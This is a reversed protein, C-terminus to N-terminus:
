HKSQPQKPWYLPEPPLHGVMVTQEPTVNLNVTRIVVGQKAISISLLKAEEITPATVLLDEVPFHPPLPLPESGCENEVVVGVTPKSAADVLQNCLNLAEWDQFYSKFFIRKGKFGKKLDSSIAPEDLVHRAGLMRQAFILEANIQKTENSVEGAEKRVADLQKHAAQASQAADGAEKTLAAMEAQGMVIGLADGSLGLVLVTMSFWKIAKRLPKRKEVASIEVVYEGIVGILVLFASGLAVKESPTSTLTSVWLSLAGSMSITGVLWFNM